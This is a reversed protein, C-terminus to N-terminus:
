ILKIQTQTTVIGFENPYTHYTQIRVHKPQCVHEILTLPVHEFATSEMPFEYYFGSDKRQHLMRVRQLFDIRTFREIEWGISYRLDTLCVAEDGAEAMPKVSLIPVKTKDITACAVVETLTSSPTVVSLAHSTGVMRLDLRYNSRQLHKHRLVQISEPLDRTELLYLTLESISLNQYRMM